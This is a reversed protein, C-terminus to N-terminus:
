QALFFFFFFFWCFFLVFFFFFFFLYLNCSLDTWFFKILVEILIHESYHKDSLEDIQEKSKNALKTTCSISVFCQAWKFLLLLLLLLLLLM